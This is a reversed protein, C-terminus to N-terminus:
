NQLMRKLIVLFDRMLLLLTNVMAFLVEPYSDHQIDEAEKMFTIVIFIFIYLIKTITCM